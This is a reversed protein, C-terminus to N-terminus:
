DRPSPSTYLLCIGYVSKVLKNFFGNTIVDTIRVRFVYLYIPFFILVFHYKDVAFFETNEVYLPNKLM